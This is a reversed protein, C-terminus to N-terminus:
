NEETFDNGTCFNEKVKHILMKVKELIAFTLSFVLLFPLLYEYVGLGQLQYFLDNAFAM